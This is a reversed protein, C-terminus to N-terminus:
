IVFRRDILKVQSKENLQKLVSRVQKQSENSSVYFRLRMAKSADSIRGFSIIPAVDIDASRALNIATLLLCSRLQVEQPDDLLLAKVFAWSQRLEATVGAKNIKPLTWSKLKTSVDIIWKSVVKRIAVRDKELKEETILNQLTNEDERGRIYDFITKEVRSYWEADKRDLFREGDNEHIQNQIRKHIKKALSSFLSGVLKEAKEGMKIRDQVNELEFKLEGFYERISSVFRDMTSQHDRLSKVFDSRIVNARQQRLKCNCKQDHLREDTTVYRCKKYDTVFKEFQFQVKREDADDERDRLNATLMDWIKNIMLNRYETLTTEFGASVFEAINQQDDSGTAVVNRLRQRFSDFETRLDREKREDPANRYRVVTLTHTTITTPPHIRASDLEKVIFDTREREKMQSVQTLKQIFSRVDRIFDDDPYVTVDADKAQGIDDPRAELLKNMASNFKECISQESRVYDKNETSLMKLQQLLEHFKDQIQEEDDRNTLGNRFDELAQLIVNGRETSFVQVDDIFQKHTLQTTQVYKLQAENEDEIIKNVRRHIKNKKHM